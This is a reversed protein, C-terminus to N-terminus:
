FFTCVWVLRYGGRVPRKSKESVKHSDFNLFHFNVLIQTSKLGGQFVYFFVDQDKDDNDEDNDDDNDEDDSDKDDEENVDEENVDEEEDVDDEDDEDQQKMM